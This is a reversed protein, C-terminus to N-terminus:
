DTGETGADTTTTDERAAFKVGIKSLSQSTSIFSARIYFGDADGIALKWNAPSLTDTVDKSQGNFRDAETITVWEGVNVDNENEPKWYIWTQKDDFSFALIAGGESDVQMEAIDSLINDVILSIRDSVVHQSYPVADIEIKLSLQRDEREQWFLISPHAFSTLLKGSPRIYLQANNLFQEYTIDFNDLPECNDGTDDTLKYLEYNATGMLKINEISSFVEDNFYLIFSRENQLATFEINYSDDESIDDNVLIRNLIRNEGDAILNFEKDITGGYLFKINSPISLNYTVDKFISFAISTTKNSNSKDIYWDGMNNQTIKFDNVLSPIFEKTTKKLDRLLYRYDFTEILADVPPQDYSFQPTTYQIPPPTDRYQSAIDSGSDTGRTNIFELLEENFVVTYQECGNQYRGSNTRIIIYTKDPSLIVPTDLYFYSTWVDSAGGWSKIIQALKIYGEKSEDEKNKTVEYLTLYMTDNQDRTDWARFALLLCIKKPRFTYGSSTAYLGYGRRTATHSSITNSQKIAM